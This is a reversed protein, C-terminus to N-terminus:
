NVFLLYFTKVNKNLLNIFFFLQTNNSIHQDNEVNGNRKKVMQNESHDIM